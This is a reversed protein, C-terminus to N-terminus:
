PQKLTHIIDAASPRSSPDDSTCRSYLTQLGGPAHAPFVLQGPRPVRGSVVEWLIIGFSWVDIKENARKRLIVEPAAWAITFGRQATMDTTAMTNAIGVDAIKALGGMVLINPSKIDRHVILPRRSHLHHLGSAIGLLIERGHQGSWMYKSGHERLASFLDTDMLETVMFLCSPKICAGYFQLVNRHRLRSITDIEQKFQSMASRPDCGQLRIVKVAVEDVGDKLGRYM